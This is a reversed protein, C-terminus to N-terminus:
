FRVFEKVKVFDDLREVWHDWNGNYDGHRILCLHYIIFLGLCVVFLWWWYWEHQGLFPSQETNWHRSQIVFIMVYDLGPSSVSQSHIPIPIGKGRISECACTAVLRLAHTKPIIIRSWFINESIIRCIQRAWRFWILTSEINSDPPGPRFGMAPNSGILGKSEMTWTPQKEDLTQFFALLM